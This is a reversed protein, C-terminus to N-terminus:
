TTIRVRQARANLMAREKCLGSMEQGLLQIVQLCLDPRSRLFEQVEGAPVFVFESADTTEVTYCSHDCSLTSSLGIFSGPQLEHLLITEGGHVKMSIRASGSRVIYIGQGVEGEAMVCEGAAFSVPRGIAQLQEVLGIGPLAESGLIGV